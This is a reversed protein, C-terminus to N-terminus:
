RNFTAASSFKISVTRLAILYARDFGSFHLKGWVFSDWVSVLQVMVVGFEPALCDLALPDINRHYLCSPIYITDAKSVCVSSGLVGQTEVSHDPVKGGPKKANKGPWRRQPNPNELGRSRKNKRSEGTTGCAATSGPRLNTALHPSASRGSAM